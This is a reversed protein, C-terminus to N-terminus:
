LRENCNIGQSRAKDSGLHYLSRRLLDDGTANLRWKGMQFGKFRSCKLEMPDLRSNKKLEKCRPTALLRSLASIICDILVQVATVCTAGVSDSSFTSIWPVHMRSVRQIEGHEIQPNPHSEPISVAETVTHTRSDESCVTATMGLVSDYRVNMDNSSITVLMCSSKPWLKM